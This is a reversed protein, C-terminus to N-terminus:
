AVQIPVAQGDYGGFHGVEIIKGEWNERYNKGKVSRMFQELSM